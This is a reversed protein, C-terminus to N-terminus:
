MQVGVSVSFVWSPDFLNYAIDVGFAPIAIKRLYLRFGLGPGGFPIPHEFVDSDYSGVEWFHNIIAVGWSSRWIPLDYGVSVSGWTDAATKKFPLTRFGDRADIATEALPPMAGLGASALLRLRQFTRIRKSWSLEGGIEWGEEFWLFRGSLMGTLGVPLVDALTTDDYRVTVVPEVYWTDQVPNSDLGPEFGNIEWNRYTVTGEVSFRDDIALGLGLGIHHKSGTFSRVSSGDPLRINTESATGFGATSTLSWSSGAVSPNSFVFLGRLGSSTGGYLASMLFMNYGLLNAEILFLGGQYSTGDTTFYPVPILSWKDELTVVVDTEDGNPNKEVRLSVESFIGSKQLILRAQDLAERTVYDGAQFPLLSRVVSEKTRVLGEVRITGIADPLHSVGVDQALGIHLSLLSLILAITLTRATHGTLIYRKM